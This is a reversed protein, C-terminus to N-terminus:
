RGTPRVAHPFCVHLGQRTHKPQDESQGCSTRNDTKVHSLMSQVGVQISLLNLYSTSQPTFYISSLTLMYVLIERFSMNCIGYRGLISRKIGSSGSGSTHLHSEPCAVITRDERCALAKEHTHNMIM